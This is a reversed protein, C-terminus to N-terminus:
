CPFHLPQLAAGDVRRAHRSGIPLHQLLRKAGCCHRSRPRCVAMTPCFSCCATRLSALLCPKLRLERATPGSEHSREEDHGRMVVVLTACVGSARLVYM